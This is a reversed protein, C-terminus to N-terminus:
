WKALEKRTSDCVNTDLSAVVPHRVRSTQTVGLQRSPGGRLRLAAGTGNPQDAWWGASVPASCLYPGCACRAAQPTADVFREYLAFELSRFVKSAGHVVEVELWLM